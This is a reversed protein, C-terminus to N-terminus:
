GCSYLRSQNTDSHKWQFQRTSHNEGHGVAIYVGPQADIRIYGGKQVVYSPNGAGDYFQINESARCLDGNFPVDGAAQAAGQTVGLTAATLALAAATKATRSIRM